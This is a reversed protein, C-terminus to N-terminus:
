YGFYRKCYEEAKDIYLQSKDLDHCMIHNSNPYEIYDYPVGYQEFALFLAKKLEPPVIKDHPGYGCLTPVTDADVLYAPSIAKWYAEAEGSLIMAETITEGTMLSLFAAASAPETHGWGAPDFHAPGTLQFVFKVPVPVTDPQSYAYLMALCGGASEGTTAMQTIQYGLEMCREYIATVCADVERNMRNLDSAHEKNHVTYEMTATIYGQAAFHKCWIDGSEKEGSTFGGGHIFLILAHGKQSDLGAPIYLDYRNGYENPYSLDEYKKGKGENWETALLKHPATATRVITIVASAAFVLLFLLICGIIKLAVMYFGKRKLM